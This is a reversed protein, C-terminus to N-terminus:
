KEDIVQTDIIFESEDTKLIYDGGFKKMKKVENLNVKKAILSNMILFGNELTLYQKQREYLYFILSFIGLTIQGMGIPVIGIGKIEISFVSGAITIILGMIGWFIGNKLNSNLRQKTYNIKIMM